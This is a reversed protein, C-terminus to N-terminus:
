IKKKGKTKKRLKCKDEPLAGTEGVSFLLILLMRLGLMTLLRLSPTLVVSYLHSIKQVTFMFFHREGVQFSVTFFRMVTTHKVGSALPVSYELKLIIVLAFCSPYMETQARTRLM